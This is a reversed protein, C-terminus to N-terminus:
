HAFPSGGLAHARAGGAQAAAAAAAAAAAGVGDAAFAAPAPAPSAARKFAPSLVAVVGGGSHRTGRLATAPPPPADAHDGPALRHRMGPRLLAARRAPSHGASLGSAGRCTAACAGGAAFCTCPGPSTSGSESTGSGSSSSPTTGLVAAASGRMAAAPSAAAAAWDRVAAPPAPLSAVGTAPPAPPQVLRKHAPPPRKAASPLAAGPTAGPPPVRRTAADHAPSAARAPAGGSPLRVAAPDCRADAGAAAGRPPGARAPQGAAEAKSSNAEIEDLALAIDTALDSAVIGSVDIAHKELLRQAAADWSSALPPSM